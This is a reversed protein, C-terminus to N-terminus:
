NVEVKKAPTQSTSPGHIAEHREMLDRWPDELMSPHFYQGFANGSQNNERSNQYQGRQGQERNQQGRRNFGGGGRGFGRGQGYPRHRQPEQPSKNQYFHPTNQVSKQSGQKDEYFGFNGQQTQQGGFQQSRYDASQSPYQGARPNFPPFNNFNKRPTGM